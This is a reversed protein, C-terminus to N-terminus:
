KSRSLAAPRWSSPPGKSEDRLYCCSTLTVCDCDRSEALVRQVGKASRILENIDHIKADVLERWIAKQRRGSPDKLLRSIEALSFGLRQSFRILLLRDVTERDYRRKGGVRSAAPLLGAAEYYRIASARLGVQAAVQGISLSPTQMEVAM